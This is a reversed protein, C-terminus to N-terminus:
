KMQHLEINNDDEAKERFHEYATGESISILANLLRRRKYNPSSKWWIQLSAYLKERDNEAAEGFAQFFSKVKSM